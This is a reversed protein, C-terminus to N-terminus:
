PTWVPYADKAEDDTLRRVDSGDKRMTFIDFNPAEPRLSAFVIRQGDPSWDPEVDLDPDATVNTREGSELDVTWIDHVGGQVSRYVISSGDPSWVPEVYYNEDDGVIMEIGSGDARVTCVQGTGRTLSASYYVIADDDASWGGPFSGARCAAAEAEMQAEMVVAEGSGDVNMVFISGARSFAIRSGDRSWRPSTGGEDGSLQRLNAGDADMVYIHATGTRDSAFAIQKGDPSWDPDFDEGPDNTLNHQDSGDANMVYIEQGGDRFAIFAIRGAASAGDGDVSTAGAGPPTAPGKGDGGGCAAAALVLGLAVLVPMRDRFPKLM